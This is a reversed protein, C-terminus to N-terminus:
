WTSEGVERGGFLSSFISPASQLIVPVASALLPGIFRESLEKDSVVPEPQDIGRQRNFAQVISPVASILAPIAAALLPFFRQNEEEVTRPAPQGQLATVVGPLADILKPLLVGLISGFDREVADADRQEPIGLERRRQQLMGFIGTAIKPAWTAAVNAILGGLFRQQDEASPASPAAGQDYALDRQGGGGVEATALSRAINDVLKRTEKDLDPTAATATAM